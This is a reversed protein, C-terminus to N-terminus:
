CELKYTGASLTATAVEGTYAFDMVKMAQGKAYIKAAPDTVQALDTLETTMEADIYWGLVEYGLRKNTPLDDMSTLEFMGIDIQQKKNDM